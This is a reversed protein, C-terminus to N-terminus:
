TSGRAQVLAPLSAASDASLLRARQLSIGRKLDQKSSSMLQRERPQDGPDRAIPIWRPEGSARFGVLHQKSGPRDDNRRAEVVRNAFGALNAFGGRTREPNRPM